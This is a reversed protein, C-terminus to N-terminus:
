WGGAMQWGGISGWAQGEQHKHLTLHSLVKGVWQAGDVVESCSTTGIIDKERHSSLVLDWAHGGHAAFHSEFQTYPKPM